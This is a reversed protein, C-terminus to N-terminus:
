FPKVVIDLVEEDNMPWFDAALCKSFELLKSDIIPIVEDLAQPVIRTVQARIGNKTRIFVNYFDAPPKGYAMEFAREYWAAQYHYNMSRIQREILDESHNPDFTKWDCLVGTPTIWDVRAKCPVKTKKDNWFFSREAVGAKLIEKVLKHKKCYEVTFLVDAVQDSKVVLKGAAQHAAVLEKVEKGGRHGDVVVVETRFRIPEGLAMHLLRGLRRADSDESPNKRMYDYLGPAKEFEKMGSNSMAPFKHYLDESVGDLAIPGKSMMKQISEITHM